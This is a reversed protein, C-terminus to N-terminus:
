QVRQTPQWEESLWQRAEEKAAIAYEHSGDYDALIRLMELTRNGFLESMWERKLKYQQEFRGSRFGHTTDGIMVAVDPVIQEEADKAAAVILETLWGWSNAPVTDPPENTPPPYVLRTLAYPHESGLSALLSAINALSSRVADVEASRVRSRHEPSVVGHPVSAWYQYLDTAFGLSTPVAARIQEILWDTQSDRAVRRNSRRWVALMAPHQMSANARLRKLVESVVTGALEVLEGESLIQSYHEWVKVYQDSTPAAVVMREVMTVSRSEKWARIDKIVDQDRIEGPLIRGALIRGLYDVPDDNHIGQLTRGPPAAKSSLQPLGLIDVLDQVRAPEALSDRLAEWRAKVTKEAQGALSDRERSESRAAEANAVIFDFAQRGGHRLATLVILDDLEVEGHLQEWARDVDRIFHKLNRPSTLLATIADAVTDGHTRRFYRVMPETVNELGLRDQREEGSSANLGGGIAKRWQAYAPALIEEVRDTSILPVREIMDCLKGYDFNARHADFALIFSVRNVHRLTWLLRELHRVEFSEGAREADEVILLLRGDIVELLPSLKGLQDAVDPVDDMGLLRGIKGTPEAALIRQYSTPLRRVAQSDVIADLAAISRELAVRPADEPRPMAWCNFEAVITLPCGKQCLRRKVANLISSKGSGVPGILAIAQNDPRIVADYIRDAIPEHGLLDPGNTLPEERRFWDTLVTWTPPLTFSVTPETGAKRQWPLSRLAVGLVGASALPGIVDIERWSPLLGSRLPPLVTDLIAALALAIVLSFWLPPYRHLRPLYNIRFRIPEAFLFAIFVLGCAIAAYVFWTSFWTSPIPLSKVCYWGCALSIEFTAAGIIALAGISAWRSLSLKLTSM